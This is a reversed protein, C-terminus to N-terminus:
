LKNQAALQEIYYLPWGPGAAHRLRDVLKGYVRVTIREEIGIRFRATDCLGFFMKGTEVEIEPWPIILPPHFLRFPVIAAMYLANPNAGISLSNNYNCWGRFQASQWNWREGIFPGEAKFRRALSAWGGLQSIVFFIAYLLSGALVSILVITASPIYYIWDHANVRM